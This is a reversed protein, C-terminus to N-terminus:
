FNIKKLIDDATVKDERRFYALFERNGDGGCIPSPIVDAAYLGCERAASIVRQVANKRDEARRVIGGKGLSGRGAEFQPKILTVAIGESKLLARIQPLILTQSIFSVDMVAIDCKEGIDEPKLERANKGEISIVRQENCLLPSLQGHGSDVAYVKGAGHQILCDTFGGTSAGIDVAIYGHVDIGFVKLAEELKLGGRSVYPISSKYEVSHDAKEDIQEGPKRILKGDVTVLGAEISKRAAERSVSYGSKTIYVDARM